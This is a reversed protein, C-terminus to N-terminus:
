QEEKKLAKWEDFTMRLSTATIGGGELYRCRGSKEDQKAAQVGHSWGEQYDQKWCEVEIARSLHWIYGAERETVDGQAAAAIWEALQKIREASTM